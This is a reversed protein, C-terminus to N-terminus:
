NATGGRVCRVLNEIRIVDGQPGRGHPYRSADGVKPDSRQAGAAHVDLLQYESTRRSKMFGLARGFCLDVAASAGPGRKHSTSSWYFGYDTKDGENKIETAEFIPDIAASNSTDPSRTYDLISHLEKANPLRWDSHGAYDLNESYELATPWDMGTGSDAQMWTLGTAHDTITGDGNDKFQNIGYDPNGRVYLVYFKGKGRRSEIPYGKIRGDAFNVGFMTDNGNMTTSVYQTSTAFQSDIVRENQAPNGYQFAFVESIFSILKSTQTSRPDPDTGNFQILSYLEKITPLRWDNYDGVRCAAAGKVAQAYTKKAGPDQTWMLGTHQDSITGNHNDTYSPANITYNADPGYYPEGPSPLPISKRTDFATTQATDEITYPLSTAAALSPLACLLICLTRRIM